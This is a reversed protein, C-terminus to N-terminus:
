RVMEALKCDAKHGNRKWADCVPCFASTPVSISHPLHVWELHCLMAMLQKNKERQKQLAGEVFEVFVMQSKLGDNEAKLKELEIVPKCQLRRPEPQDIPPAIPMLNERKKSSGYTTSPLVNSHGDRGTATMAIVLNVLVVM